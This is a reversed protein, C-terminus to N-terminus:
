DHTEKGKDIRLSLPDCLASATGPLFHLLFCHSTFRNYRHLSCSTYNACSLIDTAEVFHRNQRSFFHRASAVIEDAGSHTRQAAEDCGEAEQEKYVTMAAAAAAARARNVFLWQHTL